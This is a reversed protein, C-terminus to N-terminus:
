TAPTRTSTTSTRGVGPEEFPIWNSILTVKTPDDPSVFAYTDLNDVTPDQSILPAERHSSAGVFGTGSALLIAALLLFLALTLSLAILLQRPLRRM